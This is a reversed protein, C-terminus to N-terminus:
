NSYLLVKFATGHMFYLQSTDLLFCNQAEFIEIKRIM